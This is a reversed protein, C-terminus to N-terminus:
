GPDLIQAAYEGFLASFYDEIAGSVEVFFPGAHEDIIWRPLLADSEEQDDEISLAEQLGMEVIKETVDFSTGCLDSDDDLYFYDDTSYQPNFVAIVHLDLRSRALLILLEQSPAIIFNRLALRWKVDM